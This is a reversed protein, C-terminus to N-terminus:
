CDDSDRRIKLCELELEERIAGPWVWRGGTSILQQTQEFSQRPSCSSAVPSDKRSCDSPTM